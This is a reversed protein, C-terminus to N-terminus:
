EAKPKRARSKKAPAPTSAINGAEALVAREAELWDAVPDPHIGNQRRKESLFYARVAIADPTFEYQLLTEESLLALSTQESSDAKKRSPRAAKPTPAPPTGLEVADTSAIAKSARPKAPTVKAKPEASESLEKKLPMPRCHTM